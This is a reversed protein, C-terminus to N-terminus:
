NPIYRSLIPYIRIAFDAANREAATEAAPDLSDAPCLIRILAADTRGLRIKDLMGYFLGWYESAVVRGCGQYWYLAIQKDAGKLIVIRNIHIFAAGTSDPTSSVPLDLSGRTVPIWGSGPLCNLPSHFGGASHYGIYVGVTTGDARTYARNIYDDVRLMERANESLDPLARGVWPDIETPFTSLSDRPPVAAPGQNRAMIGAGAILCGCFIFVRASTSLKM